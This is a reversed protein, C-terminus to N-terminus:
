SWTKHKVITSELPQGQLLQVGQEMTCCNKEYYTSMTTVWDSRYLFLRSRFSM